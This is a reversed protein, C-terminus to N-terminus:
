PLAIGIAALLARSEELGDEGAAALARHDRPTLAVVGDPTAMRREFITRLLTVQARSLEYDEEWASVAEDTPLLQIRLLHAGHEVVAPWPEIARLTAGESWFAATVVPQDVGQYTDFLYQLAEERALAVVAEPAGAFYYEAAYRGTGQLPPAARALSHEDRFAAVVREPTFTVTGRAGSVDNLTYNVGDWQQLVALSAGGAVWIAHAITGLVVGRWLTARDPFASLAAAM